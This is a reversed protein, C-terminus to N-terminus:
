SMSVTSVNRADEVLTASPRIIVQAKNGIVGKLREPTWYPFCTSLTNDPGDDRLVMIENNYPGGLKCLDYRTSLLVPYMSLILAHFEKALLGDPIFAPAHGKWLKGLGVGHLREWEKRSPNLSVNPNSVCAIVHKFFSKKRKRSKKQFKTQVEGVAAQVVESSSNSSIFSQRLSPNRRISALTQLVSRTREPLISPVEEPPQSAQSESAM